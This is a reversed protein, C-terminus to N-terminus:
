RKAGTMHSLPMKAIGCWARKHWNLGSDVAAGPLPSPQSVHLYSCLSGMTMAGVPQSLGGRHLGSVVQILPACGSRGFSDPDYLESLKIHLFLGHQHTSLGM